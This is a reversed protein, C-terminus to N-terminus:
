GGLGMARTQDVVAKVTDVNRVGAETAAFPLRIFRQEKVATMAQLAPHAAIDALKKDYSNWSADVLVIVDPDTAVLEEWGVSAWTDHVDALVNTLGAADMIMQPAGIGAGAYPTDEGSSWWFATVNQVPAIAALETRQEEVLSTAAAEVGFLRGLEEIEGWVDAFTLPDPQYGPEKCASPSVYTAIGLAAYSDRSGAGQDSVNSEWGAYVFDPNLALVAEQSPVGESLVPIAAAAQTWQEPVPDDQFAWGVIKDELGLALLLETPTSKITVVREPPQNLTVQTGCNDVTVPFNDATATITVTAASAAPAGDPTINPDDDICATLSFALLALSAATATARQNKPM